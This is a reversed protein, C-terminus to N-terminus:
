EFSYGMEQWYTVAQSDFEADLFDAAFLQDRNVLPANNLAEPNLDASFGLETEMNTWDFAQFPVLVVNDNYDAIGSNAYDVVVWKAANEGLDVLIANVLGPGLDGTISSLCM